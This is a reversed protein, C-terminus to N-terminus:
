QAKLGSAQKGSPRGCGLVASQGKPTQAKGKRGRDLPWYARTHGLGRGLAIPLLMQSAWGREGARGRPKSGKGGLGCGLGPGAFRFGAQAVNPGFRRGKIRVTSIISRSPVMTPQVFGGAPAAEGWVRPRMENGDGNRKWRAALVWGGCHGSAPSSLHRRRPPGRRRGRAIDRPVTSRGRPRRGKGFGRACVSSSFRAAARSRKKQNRSHASLRGAALERVLVAMKCSSNAKEKIKPNPIETM